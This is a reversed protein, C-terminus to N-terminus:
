WNSRLRKWPDFDEEESDGEKEVKERATEIWAKPMTLAILIGSIGILIIGGILEAVLFQWGLFILILIGLEIVLNTSAFMFAVTSIFNAGKKFLARAAALAAFSCSSSISGFITALSVSKIGRDGMHRTLRAKPVFTQIMASIAYGLVFAWGAKWFFGFATKVSEGYYDFFTM